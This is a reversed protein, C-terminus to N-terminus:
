EKDEYWRDDFTYSSDTNATLVRFVMWLILVPSISFMMLILATHLELVIAVIYVMLYSTTVIVPVLYDSM